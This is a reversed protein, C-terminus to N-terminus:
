PACRAIHRPRTDSGMAKLVASPLSYREILGSRGRYSSLYFESIVGRWVGDRNRRVGVGNNYGNSSAFSVSIPFDEFLSDLHAMLLLPVVGTPECEAEITMKELRDADRQSDLRRRGDEASNVSAAFNSTSIKAM